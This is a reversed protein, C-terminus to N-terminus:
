KKSTGLNSSGGVNCIGYTQWSESMRTGHSMLVLTPFKKKCPGIRLFRRRHMVRERPACVCSKNMCTHHNKKTKASGLESSSGVICYGQLLVCVCLYSMRVHTMVKHKTQNQKPLAWNPSVESSANRKCPMKEIERSHRCTRPAICDNLSGQIDAACM